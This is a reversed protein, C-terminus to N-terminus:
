SSRHRGLCREGGGRGAFFLGRKGACVTTPACRRGGLETRKYPRRHVIWLRGRLERDGVCRKRGDFAARESGRDGFLAKTAFLDPQQECTQIRDLGVREDPRAPLRPLAVPSQRDACGLDAHEFHPAPLHPDHRLATGLLAVM